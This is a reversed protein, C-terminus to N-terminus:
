FVTAAVVPQHPAKLVNSLFRVRFLEATVLVPFGEFEYFLGTQTRDSRFPGEEPNEVFDLRRLGRM